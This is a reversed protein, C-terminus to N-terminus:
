EKVELLDTRPVISCSVQVLEIFSLILFQKVGMQGRGVIFDYPM